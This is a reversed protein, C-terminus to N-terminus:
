LPRTPPEPPQPPPLPAYPQTQQPYGGPPGSPRAPRPPPPTPPPPDALPQPYPPRQQPVPTYGAPSQPQPPPYGGPDPPPYGAGAPSAGGAFAAANARRRRRVRRVLFAVVAGVSVGTAGLVAVVQQVLKWFSSAGTAIRDGSTQYVELPITIAQEPLLPPGAAGQLVSIHVALDFTGLANPIVNFSWSASETPILVPQVTQSNAEITLSPSGTATVQVQGGIQVVDTKSSPTPTASPPRTTASPRTTSTSTRSTTASPSPTGAPNLTPSPTPSATQALAAALNDVCAQRPSDAGCVVVDFSATEALRFRLSKPTVVFGAFLSDRDRLVSAVYFGQENVPTASGGVVPTTPPPGAPNGESSCSVVLGLLAIAAGSAALRLRVNGLGAGLREFAQWTCVARIESPCHTM